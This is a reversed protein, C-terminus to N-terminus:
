SKAERVLAFERSYPEGLARHPRERNYHQRWSEVKEWADELSLLWSENLCEQRFRGNFAKILANDTPKGPLIFGLEAGNLYAWQHLVKSDFEISNDIWRISTPLGKEEVTQMFTAVVGYGGLRWGINGEFM